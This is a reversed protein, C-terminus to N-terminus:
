AIVKLGIEVANVGSTTWAAATDPDTALIPMDYKYTDTVDYTAQVYNTTGSRVAGASQKAGGDTKRVLNWPSFAHITDPTVALNGLAFLEIDNVVSSSVYTSDDDSTVDDVQQWHPSGTTSFNQTTGDGTVFLTDITSDGLFTTDDTLYFDTFRFSTASNGTLKGLRITNFTANATAQLDQSTAVTIWTTGNVKVVCTGAGISNAITVKMEIFYWTDANITNISLGDTVATSLGQLVQLTGDLNLRLSCQITGTDYFGLIVENTFSHLDNYFAFGVVGTATPTIGLSGHSSLGNTDPLLCCGGFRGLTTSISGATNFLTPWVRGIQAYTYGEFNDYFKITM